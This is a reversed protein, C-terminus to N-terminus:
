DTGLTISDKGAGEDICLGGKGKLCLVKYWMNGVHRVHPFQLRLVSHESGARGSKAYSVLVRLCSCIGYLM